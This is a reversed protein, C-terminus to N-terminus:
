VASQAYGSVPEGREADMNQAIGADDIVELSIQHEKLYKITKTIDDPKGSLQVILNGVPVGQIMEINGFLISADVMFLRSIKSIFAQSTNQGVFSISAITTSERTPVIIHEKKLTEYHRGTQFITAIFDKTVQTKPHTFIQLLNGEEVIRGNEMVAVRDCITKVVHMEHTIVVITIKLKQNIDKLLELISQTTQPDLASTAEDCLIVEPDNALARAIAVRQKQGGSLQSPYANVKESIGVLELLKLVKLKIHTKSLGKNKLPYAINQFVTRSNMLNFNQFIMGIKERTKRLESPTLSTLEKGNVIVTGSDPRELLNICRILTSKGAGSYGIIGFIEGPYIHLSVGRLAECQHNKTRYTKKINQLQIM